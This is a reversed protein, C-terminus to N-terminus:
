PPCERSPLQLPTPAGLASRRVHFGLGVSIGDCTKTPDQTGDLLIDASEMVVKAISKPADKSIFENDCLVPTAWDEFENALESARVIGGLTGQGETREKNFAITVHAQYIRFQLYSKITGINVPLLPTVGSVWTDDAVYAGSFSVKEDVNESWNSIPHWPYSAWDEETDLAKPEIGRAPFYWSPLSKYDGSGGPGDLAFVSTFRGDKTDGTFYDSPNAAFTILISNNCNKGFSNDIGGNGDIRINEYKANWGPYIEHKALKCHFGQEPTSTWGDLDFGYQKWTDQSVNGERDTEGLFWRDVVWVM